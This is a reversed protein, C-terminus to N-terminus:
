AARSDQSSESTSTEWNWERRLVVLIQEPSIESDLNGIELREHGFKMWLGGASLQRGLRMDQLDVRRYDHTTETFAKKETLCIRDQRIEIKRGSSLVSFGFTMFPVAIVLVAAPWAGETALWMAIGATVLLVIWSAQRRQNLNFTWPFQPSAPFSTAPVRDQVVRNLRPYDHIWRYVRITNTGDSLIMGGHVLSFWYRVSTIKNWPITLKPQFPRSITIGEENTAIHRCSSLRYFTRGTIFALVAAVWLMPGLATLVALVVTACALVVLHLPEYSLELNQSVPGAVARSQEASSAQWREELFAEVAQPDCCGTADSLMVIGTKFRLLLGPNGRKDNVTEAALFASRSHEIQGRWTTHRLVSEDITYGSRFTSIMLLTAILAISGLVLAVGTAGGSLTTYTLVWGLCAAGVLALKTQTSYGIRLTGSPFTQQPMVRPDDSVQAELSM